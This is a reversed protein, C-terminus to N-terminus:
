GGDRPEASPHHGRRVRRRLRGVDAALAAVTAPLTDGPVLVTLRRLWAAYLAAAFEIADGHALALTSGAPLDLAAIGPAWAGLFDAGGVGHAGRWALLPRDALAPLLADLAITEPM